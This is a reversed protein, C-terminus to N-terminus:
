MCTYCPSSSHHHDHATPPLSMARLGLLEGGHGAKVFSVRKGASCNCSARPHLYVGAKEALSAFWGQLAHQPQKHWPLAFTCCCYILSTPIKLDETYSPPCYHPANLPSFSMPIMRCLAQLSSYKGLLLQGAISFINLSTNGDNPYLVLYLMWPQLSCRTEQSNKLEGPAPLSPPM